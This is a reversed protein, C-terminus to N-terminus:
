SRPSACELLPVGQDVIARWRASGDNATEKRWITTFRGIIRGDPNRVPGSSLAESGTRDVTVRDPEWSFPAPGQQFYEKWSALVAERGLLLDKGDRFVADQSVFEGFAKLDRRAMTAAFEREVDSVELVLAQLKGAEPTLAACKAQGCIGLAILMLNVCAFRCRLAHM